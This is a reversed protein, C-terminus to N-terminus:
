NASVKSPIGMKEAKRDHEAIREPLLAACRAFLPAASLKATTFACLVDIM